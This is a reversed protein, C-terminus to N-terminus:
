RGSDALQSGAGLSRNRMPRAGNKLWGIVRENPDSPNVWVVRCLKPVSSAAECFLRRAKDDRSAVLGDTALAAEILHIDHSMAVRAKETAAANAVEERLVHDEAMHLWEVKKRGVMGVRWKRSFRSEHAKWEQRIDKTMVIRHCVDLVAQLFDRCLKSEPAVADAGGASRAVSANIVLRSARVRPM